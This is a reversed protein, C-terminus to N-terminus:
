TNGHSTYVKKDDNIVATIPKRKNRAFSELEAKAADKTLCTMRAYQKVTLYKHTALYALAMELREGQTFRNSIRVTAAPRTIVRVTHHPRHQWHRYQASATASALAALVSMIIIHKQRTTKM